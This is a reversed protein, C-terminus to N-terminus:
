FFRGAVLALLLFLLQLGVYVGLIIQVVRWFTSTGKIAPTRGEAAQQVLTAAQKPTLPPFLWGAPPAGVTLKLGSFTQLFRGLAPSPALAAGPSLLVARAAPAAEPWSDAPLVQVPAESVQQHMVRLLAELWDADGDDVVLLPFDALPSQRAELAADARLVRLHYVLLVIFVGLAAATNLVSAAFDGPVRGSLLASLVQFVLAVATGMGGIVGAFLALYLYVRRVLSRRAASGRSDQSLAEAQLARWRPLWLPIGVALASLAASLCERLGGGWANQGTLLDVLFSLLLLVGTLSFVLGIFALLTAYLRRKGAQAGADEDLAIHHLLWQGYYGWVEGLPVAVALPESIGNLAARWGGPAGLLFQLLESLAMAAAAAGIVASGWSLLYLVGLRLNAARERAEDLARQCIRWTFVWLPIGVLVLALGNGLQAGQGVGLVKEDPISFLFMLLEHIGAIGLLLAYLLWLYRYVRRADAFPEDDPPSPWAEKLTRWFYAAMSLNAIVAILNDQWSQYGGVVARATDADLAQLLARNLWALANQAVPFLLAGLAAFFFVARLLASKEEPDAAAARQVWLWHFLFVPVGVLVLSLARALADAAGVPPGSFLSRLLEIVGWLVVELSILTVLYFYLRRITKM